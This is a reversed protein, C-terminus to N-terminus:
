VCMQAQERFMLSALTVLVRFQWLGPHRCNRSRPTASVIRNSEHKKTHTKRLTKQFHPCEDIRVEHRVSAQVPQPNDEVPPKIDSCDRVVTGDVGPLQFPKMNDHASRCHLAVVLRREDVVEFTLFAGDGLLQDACFKAWGGGVSM